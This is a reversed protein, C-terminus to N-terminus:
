GRNLKLVWVPVPRFKVGDRDGSVYGPFFERGWGQKGIWSQPFISM